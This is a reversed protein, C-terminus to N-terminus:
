SCLQYYFNLTAFCRFRFYDFLKVLKSVHCTIYIYIYVKAFWICDSFSLSWAGDCFTTSENILNLVSKVNKLQQLM